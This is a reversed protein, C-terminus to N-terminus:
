GGAAVALQIAIEEYIGYVTYQALLLRGNMLVVVILAYYATLAAAGLHHDPAM